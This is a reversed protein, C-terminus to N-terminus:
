TCGSGSANRDATSRNPGNRTPGTTPSCRHSREHRCRRRSPAQAAESGPTPPQRDIQGPQLRHPPARLGPHERNIGRVTQQAVLQARRSAAAALGPNSITQALAACLASSRSRRRVDLREPGYLDVTSLPRPFLQAQHAPHDPPTPRRARVTQARVAVRRSSPPLLAYLPEDPAVFTERRRRGARREPVARHDSTLAQRGVFVPQAVPVVLRPPPRATGAQHREGAGGARLLATVACPDHQAAKGVTHYDLHEIANLGRQDLASPELRHFQSARDVMQAADTGAREGRRRGGARRDRGQPEQRERGIPDSQRFGVGFRLGAFVDPIQPHPASAAMKREHAPQSRRAVRPLDSPRDGLGPQAFRRFTPRGVRQHRFPRGGDLFHDPRDAPPGLVQGSVAPRGGPGVIQAPPVDLREQGAQAAQLRRARQRSQGPGPYHVDQGPEEPVAPSDTEGVGALREGPESVVDHEAPGIV